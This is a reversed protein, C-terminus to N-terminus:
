EERPELSLQAFDPLHEQMYAKLKGSLRAEIQRARERSIGYHDGVQQLTLPEDAVMRHKFIYSEKDVLTKSFLGLHHRFQAGIEEDALKDDVAQGGQQLRDVYTLTSGDGVPADLSFDDGSLRSDMDRVDQESVNMREALLKAEPEFGLKALKEKEKRLNFFIKRQAQTTGLKVMRWNDMLYRIVYARIWWAAYTSLKVGREPDFKKVGQMLGVNGEQILDLLNFAARRYEWAIKVVLRLNATVLRYALKPDGTRVYDRALSVEEERTLLAFRSVDAMYRQLLDAAGLGGAALKGRSAPVIARSQAGVGSLGETIEPAEAEGLAEDGDEPGAEVEEDTADAPSEEAEQAPRSEGVADRAARPRRTTAGKPARRKRPTETM